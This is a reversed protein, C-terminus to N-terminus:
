MWRGDNDRVRDANSKGRGRGVAKRGADLKKADNIAADARVKRKADGRGKIYAALVALVAAGAIALYAKIRGFIM